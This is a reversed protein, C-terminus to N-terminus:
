PFDDYITVTVKKTLSGSKGEVEMQTGEGFKDKTRQQKHSTVAFASWTRDAATVTESNRFPGMATEKNNFLALVRSRLQGDFEIRLNGGQIQVKSPVTDAGLPFTAFVIIILAAASILKPFSTRVLQLYKKRMSFM